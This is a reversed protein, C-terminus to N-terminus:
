APSMGAWAGARALAGHEKRHCGVSASDATGRDPPFVTFSSLVLTRMM